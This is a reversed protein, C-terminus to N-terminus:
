DGLLREWNDDRNRARVSILAQKFATVDCGRGLQDTFVGTPWQWRDSFWDAPLPDLDDAAAVFWQENSAVVADWRGNKRLLRNRESNVLHVLLERKAINTVNGKTIQARANEISAVCKLARFRLAEPTGAADVVARLFQFSQAAVENPDVNSAAGPAVEFQVLVEAADIRRHLPQNSDAMLARLKALSGTEAADEVPDAAIEPAIAVRQNMANAASNRWRERNQRRREEKASRAAKWHEHWLTERAKDM